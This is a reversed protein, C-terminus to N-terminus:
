LVIFRFWEKETHPNKFNNIKTIILDLNNAQKLFSPIVGLESFWLQFGYNSNLLRANETDKEM